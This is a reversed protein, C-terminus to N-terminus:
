IMMKIFGFIATSVLSGAVIMKTTSTGDTTEMDVEEQSLKADEAM